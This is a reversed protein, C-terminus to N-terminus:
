EQQSKSQKAVRSQVYLGLRRKLDDNSKSLILHNAYHILGAFNEWAVTYNISVDEYYLKDSRLHTRGYNAKARDYTRAGAEIYAIEDKFEDWFPNNPHLKDM